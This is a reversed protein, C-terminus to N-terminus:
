HNHAAIRIRRGGAFRVGRGVMEIAQRVPISFRRNGKDHSFSRKVRLYSAAKPPDLRIAASSLGNHEGAPRCTILNTTVASPHTRVTM